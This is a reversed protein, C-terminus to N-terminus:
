QENSTSVAFSEPKFGATDTVSVQLASSATTAEKKVSALTAPVPTLSVTAGAATAKWYASAVQNVSAALATAVSQPTSKSGWDAVATIGYTSLSVTGTDYVTTTTADKGGTLSKGSTELTFAANDTATIDLNENSGTALSTLKIVSGSVTAKVPSGAASLAKALAQAASAATAQPQFSATATFSGVKASITEATVEHLTLTGSAPTAAVETSTDREDGSIVIKTIDGVKSSSVSFSVPKFGATDTVSVEASSSSSASVPTLSVVAGVTSARWYASAWKNVAAALATAISKPTSERNWNAAIALGYTKLNLSGADYKTNTIADKGGSLTKGSSSLATISNGTAILAINEKSGTGISTLAIVSGSATARVPSGAANLAKALSQATAAPTAGPPYTATATFSGIKASISESGVEHVTLSGTSSTAAAKVTSSKESGAVTVVAPLNASNEQNQGTIAVPIQTAYSLVSGNATGTMQFPVSYLALYVNPGREQAVDNIFYLNDFGQEKDSGPPDPANLPLINAVVGATCSTSAALTSGCNLAASAWTGGVNGSPMTLAGYVYGWPKAILNNDTLATEGGPNEVTVTSEAYVCGSFYASPMTYGTQSQGGAGCYYTNGLIDSYVTPTTTKAFNMAVGTNNTITLPLVWNFFYTTGYNNTALPMDFYGTPAAFATSSLAMFNNPLSASISVPVVASGVAGATAFINGNIDTASINTSFIEAPSETGLPPATSPKFQLTFTCTGGSAPVTKSSCTDTSGTIVKFDANDSLLMEAPSAPFTVGSTSYNTFTFSETFSNAYNSQTPFTYVNPATSNSTAPLLTAGQQALTETVTGTVVAYSSVLVNPGAPVNVTGAAVMDAPVLWSSQNVYQAPVDTTVPQFYVYMTCNAGSAIQQNSCTDTGDGEDAQFGLDSFSIAPATMTVPYASQNTLTVQIYSGPATTSGLAATGFNICPSSAIGSPQCVVTSSGVTISITGLKKPTVQPQLESYFAYTGYVNDLYVNYTAPGVYNDSLQPGTISYAASATTETTNATSSQQEWTTSHSFGASVSANFFPVTGWAEVSESQSVTHTDTAVSTQTQTQSYQLNGGYTSPLGNPGPVPYEVTGHPQFRNMSSGPTGCSAPLFGSPQNTTSNLNTDYPDYPDALNIRSATLTALTLKPLLAVAARNLPAAITESINPDLGPGYTPHCVNVQPGNMVVFPDAQLIDAYDRMTLGPGLPLGTNLDTGWNSLDWSRSTYQLWQTCGPYASYPNKLCWVPIGVIDPYPYQNSDCGFVAQDVTLPYNPNQADCSNSFLGNWNLPVSPTAATGTLVPNLWIYIVDNDHDVGLSSSIPGMTAISNGETTQISLSNGNQVSSTWSSGTTYSASAGWAGLIGTQASVTISNTNTSSNTTSMTDTSGVLDSNGYSVSSASGPPAYVVGMVKYKPFAPPSYVPTQADCSIFSLALVCFSTLCFPLSWRRAFKLTIRRQIKHNPLVLAQNHNGRAHDEGRLGERIAALNTRRPHIRNINQRAQNQFQARVPLGEERLGGVAPLHNSYSKFSM